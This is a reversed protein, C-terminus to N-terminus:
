FAVGQKWRCTDLAIWRDGVKHFWVVVSYRRHKWWLEKIPADGSGPRDPPYFNFLAIRFEDGPSNAMTYSLVSDPQGLESIVREVTKGHLRPIKEVSAHGCDYYWYFGVFPGSAALLVVCAVVLNRRPRNM